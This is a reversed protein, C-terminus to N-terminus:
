MSFTFSSIQRKVNEYIDNVTQYISEKTINEPYEWEFSTLPKKEGTSEGISYMVNVRFINNDYDYSALLIKELMVYVLLSKQERMEREYRYDLPLYLIFGNYSDWLRVTRNTVEDGSINIDIKKEEITGAREVDESLRKIEKDVYRFFVRSKDFDSRLSSTESFLIDRKNSFTNALNFAEQYGMELEEILLAANDYVDFDGELGHTKFFKKLIKKEFPNFEDTTDIVISELIIEKKSRIM